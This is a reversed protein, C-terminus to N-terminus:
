HMTLLGVIAMAGGVSLRSDKEGKVEEQVIARVIKVFGLVTVMPWVWFTFLKVYGIFMLLADM